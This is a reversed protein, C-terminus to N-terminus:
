INRGTAKWFPEKLRRKFIKGSEERPLKAHFDIRRPVKYKAIRQTLEARVQAATLEWGPELEIAAALSEGFEEDPIGFVACDRVGPCQILASEIEAPYINVGASIVMDSRRDCLYLREDKLYGVDGVSILGDREVSKRKNVDNLYVIDSLSEQRVFIEGTEGPGVPKGDEGYLAIRAGPTLRGVSGPHALWDEPTSLMVAGVETGGYTEYIVPGWWAMLAKKIEPACPAGTHIVWRLSSVDYRRRTEEPLRMLRVFMTPVMVAHTIKQQAIIALMEEPEFKSQFTIVDAQPIAQRLCANPSAHYLPGGILVRVGPSIGYVSRMLEGYAKAQEPTAPQRKVGKPHGTTGSTYILTARSRPPAGSWPQFQALWEPWNRDSAVPTEAGAPVDFQRVIEPPTPVAIVEIGQLSEALGDRAAALLDAHAILVKPKADKLIYACEQARGHWNIPVCYAGILSAAHTAEVFSFDNRLLLAITDGESVGIAHFGSAARAGNALVEDRPLATQDLFITPATM